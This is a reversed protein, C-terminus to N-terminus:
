KRGRRWDGPEDDQTCREKQPLGYGSCGLFVGTAGNRIQLHRGCNQCEIDTDTPLNARMGGIAFKGEGDGAATDLKKKLDSYFSTLVTKWDKDGDAIEDLTEEM